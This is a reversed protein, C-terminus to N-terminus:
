RKRAEGRRKSAARAAEKRERERRNHNILKQAQGESLFKAIRRDSNEIFAHIREEHERELEGHEKVALQLLPYIEERQQTSLELFGGLWDMIRDELPRPNQKETRAPSEREAEQKPFGVGFFFGSVGGMLFVTLVLVLISPKAM